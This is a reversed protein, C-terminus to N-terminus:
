GGPPAAPLLLAATPKVGFSGQHGALAYALAAQGALADLDDM